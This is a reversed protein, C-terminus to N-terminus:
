NHFGETHGHAQEKQRTRQRQNHDRLDVSWCWGLLGVDLWDFRGLFLPVDPKLKFAHRVRVRQLAKRLHGVLRQDCLCRNFARQGEEIRLRVSILLRHINEVHDQRHFAHCQDLRATVQLQGLQLVYLLHWQLNDPARVGRAVKPGALNDGNNQPQLM